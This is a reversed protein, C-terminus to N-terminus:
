VWVLGADAVVLVVVATTGIAAHRVPQSIVT